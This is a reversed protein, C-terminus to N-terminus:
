AHNAPHGTLHGGYQFFHSRIYTIYLIISKPNDENEDDSLEDQANLTLKLFESLYPHLWLCYPKLGEILDASLGPPADEPHDDIMQLNKIRLLNGELILSGSQLHSSKLAQKM